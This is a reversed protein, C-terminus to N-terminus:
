KRGMAQMTERKAKEENAKALDTKQTADYYEKQKELLLVNCRELEGNISDLARMLELFKSAFDMVKARNEVPTESSILPEYPNTTQGDIDEEVNPLSKNHLKSNDTAPAESSESIDSAETTAHAESAYPIESTNDIKSVEDIKTENSDFLDRQTLGAEIIGKKFDNYSLGDDKHKEFFDFAYGYELISADLISSLKDSHIIGANISSLSKAMRMYLFAKQSESELKDNSVDFIKLRNILEDKLKNNYLNSFSYSANLLLGEMIEPTITNGINQNVGDLFERNSQLIESIDKGRRNTYKKDQPTIPPENPLSNQSDLNSDQVLESSSTSDEKVTIPEYRSNQLNNFREVLYDYYKESEHRVSIIKGDSGAKERLEGRSLQILDLASEKPLIYTAKGYDELCQGDKNVKFFNEAIVLDSDAIEFIITGTFRDRGLRVREIKFNEKLFDLRKKASLAEIYQNNGHNSSGQTNNENNDQSINNNRSRPKEMNPPFIEGQLMDIPLDSFYSTLVDYETFSGPNSTDLKHDEDTEVLAKIDDLAGQDIEGEEASMRLKIIDKELLAQNYVEMNRSESIKELTEIAHSYMGNERYYKTVELFLKHLKVPPLKGIYKNLITRQIYTIANESYPSRLYEICENCLNEERFPDNSDAKIQRINRIYVKEKREESMFTDFEKRIINSKLKDYPFIIILLFSFRLVFM